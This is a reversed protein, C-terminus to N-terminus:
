ITLPGWLLEATLLSLGYQYWAHLYIAAPWVELIM